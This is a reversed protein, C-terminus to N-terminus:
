IRWASIGRVLQNLSGGIFSLARLWSLPLIRSTVFPAVVDCTRM